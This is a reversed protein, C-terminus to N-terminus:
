IESFFETLFQNGLYDESIMSWHRTNESDRNKFSYIVGFSPFYVLSCVVIVKGLWHFKSKSETCKREWDWEHHCACYLSVVFDVWIMAGFYHLVHKEKPKEAVNKSFVSQILSRSVVICAAEKQVILM